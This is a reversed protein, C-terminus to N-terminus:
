WCHHKGDSQYGKEYCATQCTNYKTVGREVDVHVIGIEYDRVEVDYHAAGRYETHKGTYVVPERAHKAAHHVFAHSVQVEPKGEDGNITYEEWHVEKTKGTNRTTVISVSCPFAEMCESIHVRHDANECENTCKSLKYEDEVEEVEEDPHTIDDERKGYLKRETEQYKIYDERDMIVIENYTHDGEGVTITVGAKKGTTSCSVCQHTDPLIELRKPHIEDGCTNCKRM